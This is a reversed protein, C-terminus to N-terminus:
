STTLIGSYANKHAVKPNLVIAIITDCSRKFSKAFYRGAVSSLSSSSFQVSFSQYSGHCSLCLIQQSYFVSSSKLSSLCFIQRPVFSLLDKSIRLASSRKPYALRFIKQSVCPPFDKSIRLVSSRKLYALCFIKQPMFSMIPSM